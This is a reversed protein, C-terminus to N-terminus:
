KYKLLITESNNNWEITIILEAKESTKRENLSVGESKYVGSNNLEVGEQGTGWRPAELKYKISGVDEFNDDKYKLIIDESEKGSTQHLIVEASWSESEGVFTLTDSMQCGSLIVITFLLLKIYNKM